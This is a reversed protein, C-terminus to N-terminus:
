QIENGDEDIIRIQQEGHKEAYHSATRLASNLDSTTEITWWKGIEKFQITYKLRIIM